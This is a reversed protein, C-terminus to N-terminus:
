SDKLPRHGVFPHPRGTGTPLTIIINQKLSEKLLEIQYDRSIPLADAGEEDVQGRDKDYKMITSALGFVVGLYSSPQAIDISARIAL